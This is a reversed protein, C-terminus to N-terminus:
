KPADYLENESEGTNGDEDDKDSVGVRETREYMYGVWKNVINLDNKLTFWQTVMDKTSKDFAVSVAVAPKM